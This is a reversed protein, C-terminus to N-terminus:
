FAKKSGYFALGRGSIPEIKKRTRFTKVETKEATLFGAGGLCRLQAIKTAAIWASPVLLTAASDKV